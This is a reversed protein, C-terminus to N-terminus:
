ALLFNINQLIDLSYVQKETVAVAAFVNEIVDFGEERAVQAFEPYM